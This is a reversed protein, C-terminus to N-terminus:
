SSQFLCSTILEGVAFMLIRSVSPEPDEPLVPVDSVSVPAEVSLLSLLFESFDDPSAPDRAPESAPELVPEPELPFLPLEDPPSDDPLLLLLARAPAASPEDSAPM